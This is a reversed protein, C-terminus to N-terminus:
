SPMWGEEKGLQQASHIFLRGSDDEVVYRIVGSRKVAMGALTGKYTYDGGKVTVEVTHTLQLLAANM